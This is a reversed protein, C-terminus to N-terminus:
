LANLIKWKIRIFLFWKASNIEMGLQREAIGGIARRHAEAHGVHRANIANGFLHQRVGGVRQRAHDGVAFPFTLGRLGGDPQSHEAHGRGAHLRDALKVM